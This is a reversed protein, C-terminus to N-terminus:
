WWHYPLFPTRVKLDYFDRWAVHGDLYLANAGLPMDQRMHNTRDPIGWRAWSGGHVVFNAMEPNTNDSLTADTILIRAAANRDTAKRIWPWAPEGPEYIPQWSRGSETDLLWFYSTVRYNNWRQEPSKPEPLLETSPELGQYQTFQWFHAMEPEKSPDAPCYFTAKDGGTKLIYDTTAYSVDWLWDQRNNLPLMDNNDYAYMLASKGLQNLNNSCVVRKAQERAMNLAPLLISILLAIISIVVLLEILTFGRRGVGVGRLVGRKTKM